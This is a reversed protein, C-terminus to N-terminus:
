DKEQKLWTVTVEPLLRYAIEVRFPKEWTVTWHGPNKGLGLFGKRPPQTCQMAKFQAGKPLLRRGHSRAESESDAKVEASEHEGQQVIRPSGVDVADQPVSAKADSIASDQDPGTGLATKSQADRTTRTEFITSPSVGGDVIEQIAEEETKGVLKKTKLPPALVPTDEMPNERNYQDIAGKPHRGSLGKDYTVLDALEKQLRERVAQPMAVQLGFYGTCPGSQGPAVFCVELVDRSILAEAMKMEDASDFDFHREVVFRDGIASKVEPTDVQVFVQFVAGLKMRYFAFAVSVPQNRLANVANTAKAFLYPGESEPPQDDLFAVTAAWTASLFAVGAPGGPFVSKVRPAVEADPPLLLVLQRVHKAADEAFYWKPECVNPSM